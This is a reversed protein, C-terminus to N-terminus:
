KIGRPNKKGRYVIGIANLDRNATMRNTWTYPSIGSLKVVRDATWKGGHNTAYELLWLRREAIREKKPPPRREERVEDPLITKLELERAMDPTIGFLECLKTDRFKQKSWRASKLVATIPPDDDDSPYPPNMGIAMAEVSKKVKKYDAGSTFLYQAYLRLAFRRGCSISGDPYAMGRKAFGGRHSHLLRLDTARKSALFIKGKICQPASGPNKTKRGPHEAEALLRTEDPLFSDHVPAIGAAAALERMTYLYGKGSTDTRIWYGVRRNAKSHLSNPARLVRVADRIPDIPLKATAIIEHLRKNIAKYQIIREPWARPPLHREEEDCLMWLLYIGRGSRAAMSAQPLAGIDMLAEARKLAETWDLDAGPTASEPRGCDVDTYYVNLTRLHKEKRWVGPLGTYKAVYPAARYMSNVSFYSDTALWDQLGPLMSLLEDAKISFLNRMEGSKDKHMFAVFGDRDRHIALIPNAAIPIM